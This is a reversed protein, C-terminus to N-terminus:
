DWMKKIVINVERDEEAPKLWGMIQCLLRAAQLKPLAKIRLFDTDGRHTTNIEQVLPHTDDLESVPTHLISVLYRVMDDRKMDARAEAERQRRTIEAAVKPHNALASADAKSSTRGYVRAYAAAQSAGDAVLRAFLLQRPNLPRDPRASTDAM